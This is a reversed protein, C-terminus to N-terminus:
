PAAGVARGRRALEADREWQQMLADREEDSVGCEDQLWARWFRGAQPTYTSAYRPETEVYGIVPGLVVPEGNLEPQHPPEEGLAPACGECYPQMAGDAGFVYHRAIVHTPDPWLYVVNGWKAHRTHRWLFGRCKACHRGDKIWRAGEATVVHNRACGVCRAREEPVGGRNPELWVEAAQQCYPCTM